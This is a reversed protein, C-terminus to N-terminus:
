VTISEEASLLGKVTKGSNNKPLDKHFVIDRPIEWSELYNRLERKIVRRLAAADQGSPNPAPLVVHARLANNEYIVAAEQIQPLCNLANEIKVASVKRGHINYVNDKRGNFYLYGDCDMYGTDGVSYPGTIGMASYPTDVYIEGNCLTVDVGPFPKGICAPNENMERDTLWTVYSLESAGYYLFCCSDPYAAKLHVMDGRGLSQSGALITRIGPCPHSAYKALLRLKSPILYLADAHHLEIERSWVSPNVPSATLISAGVSLLSLYLNLNGTFALSGQAFLRTQRTMGFIKNQIPFFSAWSDLTRFWLKPLGTSGSTLVGMCAKGPIEESILSEPVSKMGAPVIVPIRSTGSLALFQVLQGHVSSERIWVVRATEHEPVLSRLRCAESALMGYTYFQGDEILATRHAPISQILSLYDTCHIM